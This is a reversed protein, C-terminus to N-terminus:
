LLFSILHLSLQQSVHAAFIRRLLQLIWTFRRIIQYLRNDHDDDHDDGDDHDDDDGDDDHDDGDGDYYVLVVSPSGETIMVWGGVRYLVGNGDM